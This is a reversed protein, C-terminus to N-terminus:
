RTVPNPQECSVMDESSPSLQSCLMKYQGWVATRNYHSEILDRGNAGLQSRLEPNNLLKNLGASMLSVSEAEVLLANVKDTVLDGVGAVNTCLLPLRMAWAELIAVSLTEGLTSLVAVHWYRMADLLEHHPLFGLFRVRASLGLEDCLRILGDQDPGDGALELMVSDDELVAFARILTEFDKGEDMRGQMGITLSERRDTILSDFLDLRLGNPIVSTKAPQYCLGLKDKVANRYVETLYVTHDSVRHALTSLIWDKWTKLANSHHEVFIVKGSGSGSRIPGLLASSICTDHHHAIVFQPNHRRIVARLARRASLGIGPKKVITTHEIGHFECFEIYQEATPETGYFIVAQSVGARVGEEALGTAVAAQGGVGPYCIHIMESM